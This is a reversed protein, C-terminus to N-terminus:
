ATTLYESHDVQVVMRPVVDELLKSKVFDSDKSRKKVGSLYTEDNGARAMMPGRGNNDSVEIQGANDVLLVWLGDLSLKKHTQVKM